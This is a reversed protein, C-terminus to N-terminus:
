DDNLMALEHTVEDIALLLNEIATRAPTEMHWAPTRLVEIAKYLQDRVTRLAAARGANQAM